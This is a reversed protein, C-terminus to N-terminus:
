PGWPAAETITQRKPAKGYMVSKALIKGIMQQSLGVDAAIRAQTWGIGYLDCIRGNRARIMYQRWQRADGYHRKIGRRFQAAFSHDHRGYELHEFRDYTWTAISDAIKHVDNRDTPVPILRNLEGIIVRCRRVWDGLDRFVGLPYIQKRGVDFLM